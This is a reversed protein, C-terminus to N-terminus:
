LKSVMCAILKLQRESRMPPGSSWIRTSLIVFTLFSTNNLTTWSSQKLWSYGKLPGNGWHYLFLKQKSTCKGYKITCSSAQGLYICYVLYIQRMISYTTWSSFLTIGQSKWSLGKPWPHISILLHFSLLFKCRIFKMDLIESNVESNRLMLSTPWPILDLLSLVNRTM